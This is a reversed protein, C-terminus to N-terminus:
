NTQGSRDDPAAKKTKFRIAAVRKIFNGKLGINEREVRGQFGRSGSFRAHTKRHHGSLHAIRGLPAVLNVGGDPLHVLNM